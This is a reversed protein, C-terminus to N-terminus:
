IVRGPLHGSRPLPLAQRSLPVHLFFYSSGSVVHWGSLGRPSSSRPAGTQRPPGLLDTGLRTSVLTAKRLSLLNRRGGAPGCLLAASAQCTRKQHTGFSDERAGAQGQYQHSVAMKWPGMKSRKPAMEGMSDGAVSLSCRLSICLMLGLNSEGHGWEASHDQSFNFFRLKRVSFIASM